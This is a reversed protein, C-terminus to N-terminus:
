TYNAWEKHMIDDELPFTVTYESYNQKSTLYMYNIINQCLTTNTCREYFYTYLVIIITVM